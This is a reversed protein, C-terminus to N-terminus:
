NHPAANKPDPANGQAGQPLALFNFARFPYLGCRRFEDFQMPGKGFLFDAFTSIRYDLDITLFDFLARRDIKNERLYYESGCEFIIVPRYRDITAVAGRLADLEFGEVDLKILDVRRKEAIDDLRRTEIEYSVFSQDPRSTQLRSSASAEISEEFIARGNRNSAALCLVQVTPFRRRLNDAKSQVAEIALHHGQPCKRLVLSLFSGIHSGVDICCSDPKLLRELVMPLRYEDFHLEWLETHKRKRIFEFLWRARLAPEELPTGIFISKLRHRGV